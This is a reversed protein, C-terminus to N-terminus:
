LACFPRVLLETYSVGSNGSFFFYEPLNLMKGLWNIVISELETTAPSSMWNFGVVNFGTSLIEWLFGSISGSSPFYAFYNPSQWHTLGPIINRCTKSFLKLPKRSTLPMRRCINGFIVRSRRVGSQTNRLM